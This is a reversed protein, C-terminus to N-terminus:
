GLLTDFGHSKLFLGKGAFALDAGGVFPQCYRAGKLLDGLCTVGPLFGDAESLPINVTPMGCQSAVMGGMTFGTLPVIHSLNTFSTTDRSNEWVRLRPAVDPFIKADFYTRELGEM